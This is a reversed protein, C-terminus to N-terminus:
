SVTDVGDRELKAKELYYGKEAVNLRKWSESIRKNIESQPLNPCELQIVQHFDFYYLLYASRSAAPFSSFMM